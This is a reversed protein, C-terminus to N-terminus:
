IELDLGNKDEPIIYEWFAGLQTHNVFLKVYYDSIWDEDDEIGNNCKQIKQTLTFCLATKIPYVPYIFSM